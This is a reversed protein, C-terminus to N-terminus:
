YKLNDADRRKAVVPTDSLGKMVGIFELAGQLKFGAASASIADTTQRSLLNQYELMAADAVAQFVDSDVMSRHNKLLSTNQLFREKPTPNRIPEPTKANADPM